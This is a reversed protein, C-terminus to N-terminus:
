TIGWVNQWADFESPRIQYRAFNGAHLSMLETEAVEIFHQREAPDIKKESWAAIHAVAIKRNM